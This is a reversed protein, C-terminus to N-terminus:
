IIDARRDTYSPRKAPRSIITKALVHHTAVDSGGCGGVGVVVAAGIVNLWLFSVVDTAYCTIVVIEAIIAAVFVATGQARKMSVAVEGCAM